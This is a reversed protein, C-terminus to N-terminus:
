PSKAATEPLLAIAPPNLPNSKAVRSARSTPLLRAKKSQNPASQSKPTTIISSKPSLACPLVDDAALWHLGHPENRTRHMSSPMM